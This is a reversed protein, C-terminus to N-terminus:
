LGKKCQICNRTTIYRWGTHGKGCPNGTRYAVFGLSRAAEFDIIMDPYLEYVPIEREVRKSCEKCEGNTIRRLAIHGNKCPDNIAPMYWEEGAAIAKQRPSIEKNIKETECYYCKGSITKKGNHGCYKNFHPRWYYDYGRNTADNPDSPEGNDTAEKYAPYCDQMACCLSIGTRTFVLSNYEGGHNPGKRCHDKYPIPHYFRTDQKVAEERTQPWPTWEGTPLQHYRGQMKM